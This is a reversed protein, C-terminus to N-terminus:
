SQLDARALPKAASRTDEFAFDPTLLRSLRLFDGNHLTQTFDDLLTQARHWDSPVSHAM